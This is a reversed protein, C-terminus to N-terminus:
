KMKILSIGGLPLSSMVDGEWEELPCCDGKLTLVPHPHLNAASSLLSFHSLHSQSPAKLAPTTLNLSFVQAKRSQYIHLHNDESEARVDRQYWIRHYSQEGSLFHPSVAPIQIYAIVQSM